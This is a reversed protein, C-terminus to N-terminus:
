DNMLAEFIISSIVRMEEVNNYCPKRALRPADNEEQDIRHLLVHDLVALQHPTLKIVKARQCMSISREVKGM